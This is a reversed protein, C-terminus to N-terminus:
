ASTRDHQGLLDIRAALMRAPVGYWRSQVGGAKVEAAELVFVRSVHAEDDALEGAEGVVVAKQRAVLRAALDRADVRGVGVGDELGQRPLTPPEVGDEVGVPMRVVGAAVRPQLGLGARRDDSRGLHPADRRQIALHLVALRDREAVGAEGHDLGAPVREAM